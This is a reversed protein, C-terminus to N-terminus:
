KKMTRLQRKLKREDTKFKVHADYMAQIAKKEAGELKLREYEGYAADAAAGLLFAAAETEYVM